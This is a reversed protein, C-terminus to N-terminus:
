VPTEDGDSFLTVVETQTTNNYFTKTVTMVGNDDVAFSVNKLVSTGLQNAITTPLSNVLRNIEATIVSNRVPNASSQSLASDVPLHSTLFGSDNTLESTKTPIDLDLKSKLYNTIFNLVTVAYTVSGTDFVMIDTENTVSSRKPLNKVLVESM